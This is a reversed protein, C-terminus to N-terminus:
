KLPYHYIGSTYDNPERSLVLHLDRLNHQRIKERIGAEGPASQLLFEGEPNTLKARTVETTFKFVPQQTKVNYVNVYLQGPIMAMDVNSPNFKFDVDMERNKFSYDFAPSGHYSKLPLVEGLNYMTKCSSFSYNRRQNRYSCTFNMSIQDENEFISLISPRTM